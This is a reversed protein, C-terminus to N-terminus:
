AMYPDVFDFVTQAYLAPDAFYCVGHAAGEVIFMKKPAPCADYLTRMMEFPVVSDHTGHIFLMPTRSRHLASEADAERLRCGCLLRHYACSAAVLMKKLWMPLKVDEMHSLFTDKANTYGCDEVACRVNAPLDAEGVAMMTTAAGMSLGLIAIKTDEGLTENLLNMWAIMDRKELQGMGIYKGGSKGHARHDPMFVNWGREYFMRAIFGMEGSSCQHGHIVFAFRDTATKARLLHGILTLGDASTLQMRELPQTNWWINDEVAATRLPSDGSATFTEPTDREPDFNYDRETRRVLAYRHMVHVMFAFWGLLLLIILVIAIILM